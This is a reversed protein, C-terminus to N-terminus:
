DTCNHSLFNKLYIEMKIQFNSLFLGCILDGRTCALLEPECLAIVTTPPFPIRYLCRRYRTLTCEPKLEVESPTIRLVKCVIEDGIKADKFFKRRFEIPEFDIQRDFCPLTNRSMM